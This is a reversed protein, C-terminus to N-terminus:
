CWISYLLLFCSNCRLSIMHSVADIANSNHQTHFLSANIVLTCQLAPFMSFNLLPHRQFSLVYLKSAKLLATLHSNKLTGKPMLQVVRTDPFYLYRSWFCPQSIALKEEQHKSLVTETWGNWKTYETSCMIIKHSCHLHLSQLIYNSFELLATQVRSM